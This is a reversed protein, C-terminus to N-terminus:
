RVEYWVLIRGSDSISQEHEISAYRKLALRFHEVDYESFIDERSRLMERVRADNKPVFEIVGTPSLSTIWEVAQTLPINRGVVLHHLFALAIVADACKRDSLGLREEQRWGQNPAPNTADLYLPLFPLSDNDARSSAIELAKHDFDFGVASKAGARIAAATYEGNNCGIDWLLNPRVSECFSTVFERKKKAEDANYSTLVDYDGWETQDLGLPKLKTIFRKLTELIGRLSAESLPRLPTIHAGETKNELRAHLVVNSLVGWSLKKSIPLVRNLDNTAIGELSGRYWSHYAVGLKSMLLLPNLFQQCFQRYGLWYDGPSYPVISLLDIFVPRSGVFQINYASGDSITMGRRLLRLHFDLHFVAAKKLLSFPWEYPYSVFPLRPHEVAGTVWSAVPELESLNFDSFPWLSGDEVFESIGLSKLHNLREKGRGSLLRLIRSNWYYVHGAPDRFSGPDFSGGTPM